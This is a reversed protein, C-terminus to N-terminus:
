DFFDNVQLLFDDWTPMCVKESIYVFCIEECLM